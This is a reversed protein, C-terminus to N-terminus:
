YSVLSELILLETCTVILAFNWSKPWLHIHSWHKGYIIQGIFWSFSLMHDINLISLRCPQRVFYYCGFFLHLIIIVHLSHFCILSISIPLFVQLHHKMIACIFECEVRCLNRVHLCIYILVFACTTGHLNEWTKYIQSYGIRFCRNLSEYAM